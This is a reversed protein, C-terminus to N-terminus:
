QGCKVEKIVPVKVIQPNDVVTESPGYLRLVLKFDNEGLIMINEKGKAESKNAVIMASFKGKDMKVSKNNISTNEKDGLVKNDLGYATLSWFKAQMDEGEVEYCKGKEYKKGDTDTTSILYLGQSKDSAVLGHFATYFRLWLNADNSGQAEQYFFNKNYKLGVLWQTVVNDFLLPIISIVGLIIGISIAKITRQM